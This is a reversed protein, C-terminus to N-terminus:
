CKFKQPTHAPPFVAKLFVNSKHSALSQRIANEVKEDRELSDNEVFKKFIVTKAEETYRHPAHILGDPIMSVTDSSHEFGRINWMYYFEEIEKATLRPQLRDAFLILDRYEDKTRANFSFPYDIAAHDGATVAPIGVYAFEAVASGFVTFMAALGEGIMQRNSAGQHLFHINPYIRQLEEFLRRNVTDLKKHLSNHPHPKVYWEFETQQAHQLLFHIWETFDPFLMWRYANPCDCMDHLLILIKPKSTTRLLRKGSAPAYASHGSPILRTNVEGDLYARLAKRAKSRAEEQMKPNLDAFLERFRVHPRGKCPWNRHDKRNGERFEEDLRILSLPAYPVMYIPIGSLLALRQPISCELFGPDHPIFAQVQKKKFYAQFARTMMWADRIYNRLRRDTIDAETLFEMRLYTDHILDGVVLDDICISLIDNKTRLEKWTTDAFKEADALYPEAHKWTLTSRAGFSKYLVEAYKNKRSNLWYTEIKAGSEQALYNAVHSYACVSPPHPIMGVLIVRKTIPQKKRWKRLNHSVFIEANEDLWVHNIRGRITRRLRDCLALSSSKFIKLNLEGTEKLM